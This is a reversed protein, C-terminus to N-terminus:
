ILKIGDEHCKTRSFITEYKNVQCVVLLLIFALWVSSMCRCPLYIKMLFAFLLFMTVLPKMCPLGSKPLEKWLKKPRFHWLACCWLVHYLLFISNYKNHYLKANLIDLLGGFISKWHQYLLFYSYFSQM